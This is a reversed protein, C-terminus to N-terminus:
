EARLAETPQVRLARRAPGITAILGVMAMMGAVQLMMVVLMDIPGSDGALRYVLATGVVGLGIGTGIQRLARSLVGALVRGRTAGLATRIGIERRRQAVTFSMLAYIGAASLLVVSMTVMVLGLIALREVKIAENLLEELSWISTFRLTPDVVLAVERIRAATALPTLNRARVALTLPYVEAPRLPLYVKPRVDDPTVPSPFDDVVGVIEWWPEANASDTAVRQDGASRLRLGLANGGGLFHRVFSRNVIAASADEGFDAAAFTRGTLVRVDFADFFATDVRVAGLAGDAHWAGSDSPASSASRDIEIRLYSEAGPPSSMVVVDFSGPESELRRMLDAVRDTYGSPVAAARERVPTAIVFSATVPTGQDVLALRVLHAGGSLALPLATVSVAVQAVLLVTWTRGLQM